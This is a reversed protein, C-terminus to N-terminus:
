YKHEESIDLFSNTPAEVKDLRIFICEAHGFFWSENDIIFTLCYDDDSLSIIFHVNNGVEFILPSIDKNNQLIKPKLNRLFSLVSETLAEHYPRINDSTMESNSLLSLFETWILSANMKNSGGSKKDITRKIFLNTNLLQASFFLLRNEM